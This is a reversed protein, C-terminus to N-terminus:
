EVVEVVAMMGNDEHNLIHCHFVFKGPFDTFRTRIVMDENPLLPVTDQVGTADYPRGSVSVVQFDNVHIHFPHQEDSTNRLTWEEVTGLRPRVDVRGADFEKDNIFFHNSEDESFTFTRREVVEAEPITADPILSTPMAPPQEAAGGSRLTLLDTAPYVDDGQEYRRTRFTTDGEAPGTVLVEYRKGPPLVLHEADEVRWKPNGDEGVVTLSAGALEVDYWIDAGINALHWLQVEGPAIGQVPESLGNVTRLTPANSDIDDSEIRDGTVQADKLALVVRDVERLDAPLLDAVGEIVIVGSLGGFVQEESLGHAHSHYWFTGPPHNEPIALSYGFREGPEVSLFINDGNDVPSVHLGHFHINTHADLRNDLTLDITDGPRVVLTPGLLADAYAEGDVATGAVRIGRDDAVLDLALRGGTSETRPPETLAERTDTARLAAADPNGEDEDGDGGCAVPATLLLVAALVTAVRRAAVGM